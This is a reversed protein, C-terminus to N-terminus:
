KNGKVQTVLGQISDKKAKVSSKLNNQDDFDCKHPNLFKFNDLKLFFLYWKHLKIYSTQIFKRVTNEESSYSDFHM